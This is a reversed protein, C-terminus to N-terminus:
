GTYHVCSVEPNWDSFVGSPNNKWAWVHLEYHGPLRLRNPAGVYNFLQGRLMPSSANTADWQEATVFFEVAVFQLRGNRPEYVLVEPTPRRADCRGVGADIQERREEGRKARRIRLDRQFDGNGILEEGQRPPIGVHRDSRAGVHRFVHDRAADRTNCRCEIRRCRISRRIDPAFEDVVCPDRGVVAQRM